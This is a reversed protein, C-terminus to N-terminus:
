DSKLKPRCVIQEGTYYAYLLVMVVVVGWGFCFTSDTSLLLALLFMSSVFLLLIGVYHRWEWEYLKVNRANVSPNHEANAIPRAAAGLAFDIADQRFGDTFNNIYYRWGTNLGDSLLGMKTRSGTRTFDAKLAGTGAYHVSLADGNDAWLNNFQTVLNYFEVLNDTPSLIQLDKLQFEMSRFALMSQVVNTRDLCDICNTRFTGTQRKVEPDLLNNKQCCFYGFDLIIPKLEDLFSQLKSWDLNKCEKHFDFAVYKVFDTVTSCLHEFATALQKERGSKSILNLFCLKDNYLAAHSKAHRKFASVHDQDTRIRPWPLRELNPKQSWFLPISGRTQVHSTLFRDHEVIQESEVFNSVNGELDLGRSFFRVGARQVSRRSVLTVQLRTQKVLCQDLSEVFGLMVPMMYQDAKDVKRLDSMMHDNWVFRRDARYFLPQRIFDADTNQLTQLTHTLDYTPSFYFYKFDLFTQLMQFYIQNENLEEVSRSRQHEILYPFVETSEVAYVYEGNITATLRRKTILVLHKCTVLGLIGFIGYVLKNAASYPLSSRPSIYVDTSFRDIILCSGNSDIPLRDMTCPDFYFKENTEYFLFYEFVTM